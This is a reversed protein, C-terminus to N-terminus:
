NAISQNVYPGPTVVYGNLFKEMQRDGPASPWVESVADLLREVYSTKSRITGPQQLFALAADIAAKTCLNGSFRHHARVTDIAIGRNNSDEIIDRLGRDGLWSNPDLQTLKSSSTLLM